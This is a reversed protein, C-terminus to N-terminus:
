SAHKFMAERAHQRAQDATEPGMNLGEAYIFHISEIGMLGFIHRLYPSQTDMATGVYQGGRAAFIHV